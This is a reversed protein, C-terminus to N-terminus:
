PAREATPRQVHFALDLQKGIAKGFEFKGRSQTLIAELDIRKLKNAEAPIELDGALGCRVQDIAGHADILRYRTFINRRTALGLRTSGSM